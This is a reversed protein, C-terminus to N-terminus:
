EGNIWKDPAVKRSLGLSKRDDKVCDWQESKKNPTETYNQWDINIYMAQGWENPETWNM